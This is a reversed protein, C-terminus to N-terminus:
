DRGEGGGKMKKEDQRSGMKISLIDVGRLERDNLINIPYSKPHQDSLKRYNSLNPLTPDPNEGRTFLLISDPMREKSQMQRELM